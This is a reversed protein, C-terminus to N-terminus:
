PSAEAALSLTSSSDLHFKPATGAAPDSPGGQTAGLMVLVTTDPVRREARMTWSSPPPGRRWKAALGSAWSTTGRARRAHQGTARNRANLGTLLKDFSLDALCLTERSRASLGSQSTLTEVVAASRIARL